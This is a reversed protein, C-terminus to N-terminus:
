SEMDCEGPLKASIALQELALEKEGVWAYMQALYNAYDPGHFYDRAIPLLARVREGAALTNPKDGRRRDDGPSALGGSIRSM